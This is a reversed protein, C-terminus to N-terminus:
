AKVLRQVASIFEKLNVPKSLYDNAGADLCRERDSPMALATLAIIPTTALAADARMQRILELGDVHPMQIDVLMLAPRLARARALAIRSDEIAEVRYANTELIGQIALLLAPQDDVALILPLDGAVAAGSVPMAPTIPPELGVLVDSAPAVQDWPLSVTFRSGKGLGDSEAKVQGGHLEALRRVLALGLGTGEYARALRTDLQVFDQFLRPLDEAAIGIGSDWVTFNVRRRPEDGTVALGVKGGEPTFKVANGLLNVLIQKLRRMDAQLVTVAPDSTLSVSINKKGAQPSVLRAAVQCIEAVSVPGLQVELRGASVKALDLVDNILALLHEGSQHIVQVYQLQKETLPGPYKLQLSEALGLIATLPTRLEHSMGALFEDKARMARVLQQNVASLEATREDVRQELEANLQRLAKEAQKRETIDTSISLLGWITQGEPETYIPTKVEWYIRRGGGAEVVDIEESTPEGEFLRLDGERRRKVTDPPFFRADDCGVLEEASCGLLQLTPRNAYIYRFQTDKMYIQASVHDLAERFRQAEALTNSLKLEAQKRETIEEIMCLHRTPSPNLETLPAITMNIWVYSGDPHRYRKHMNFGPIQGANLRAMQDLDAQVDEPHTISMWDIRAMEERTRGAIEAFRANVESIRGTYSDILAVGLPAQEFMTRFRRESERLAEEMQKRATIDLALGAIIVEAGDLRSEISRDNFWRWHGHADLIRYEINFAKGAAAERISQDVRGLDDPHIVDHWLMPQAALQEASYGLIDTVRASYYGGGGQNSFAYVIGPLGEVLARYHAESERLAEEAQKHTTLDRTVALLSEIRGRADREPVIHTQFYKLGFPTRYRQEVELEAGTELVQRLSQTIFETQAPPGGLELSTKGLFARAPLGLQREVAANGYLHRLGTDFRVIMDPANEVLTSFEREQRQRATELRNRETMDRFVGFAGLYRGAEDCRATATLLLTRREGDPRVIELEYVSKDGRRRRQSQADVLAAQEPTLFDLLSRGVLGGPPVGFLQEGAPNVFAFREQADVFGAGEGLNDIVLQYLAESERLAAEAQKRATIASIVIRGVPEASAREDSTASAREDSTMELQAWFPASDAPRMRLECTQPVGTEFLRKRHRYYIDQDAPLIFHTLPQRVLASREVGLLEAAMLNAELILGPKDLTVYGVPALDYLDFYRARAAELKAQTRRLEENQMELEIQHVQLEHLLRWTEEPSLAVPTQATSARFKAEAQQRLIAASQPAYNETM